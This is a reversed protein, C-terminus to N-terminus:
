DVLTQACVEQIIEAARTVAERSVDLHTVARASSPGFQLLRVGIKDLMAVFTAVSGYREDIEFVVINTEVTKPDIRLGPVEAIKEALLRANRHDEVLREVNHDLAFIAAAALLGSQRMAGGFMKRFRHCREIFPADGAVVSGVPAGLGKSFCMSVSHVHRTFEEPKYGRAICANLFRAGDLHVHLDNQNAVNRIDTAADIPWASGGGVNNSNEIVVMRSRPYHSARPRLAAEVARGNFVGSEHDVFRMSVGALAAPAATEYNFCHTGTTCIIEDGHEAASRIALANAMTGSPVFVAAEKGLLTAAREQLAIVTPDDGLVDDGLPAAIMAQLMEPSPKTITDSRLDAVIESM